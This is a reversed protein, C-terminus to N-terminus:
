IVEFRNGAIYCYHASLKVLNAAKTTNAYAKAEDSLVSGPRVSFHDSEALELDAKAVSVCDHGPSILCSDGM